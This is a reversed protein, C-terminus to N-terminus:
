GAPVLYDASIYKGGTYQAWKSGDGAYRWATVHVTRGPQIFGAAAGGPAKRVRVRGNAEVIYEADEAIEFFKVSVYAVRGEFTTKFFGNEIEVPDAEITEGNRLVGWTAAGGSAQNRVNVYQGDPVICVFTEAKAMRSGGASMTMLLILAALFFRAPTCAKKTYKMM